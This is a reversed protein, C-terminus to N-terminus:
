DNNLINETKEKCRNYNNICKDCTKCDYFCKFCLEENIITKFNIILIKIYKRINYYNFDNVYSKLKSLYILMYQYAEKHMIITKDLIEIFRESIIIQKIQENINIDNNTENSFINDIEKIYKIFELRIASDYMIKKNYRIIM